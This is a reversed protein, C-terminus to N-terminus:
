QELEVTYRVRVIGKRRKVKGITVKGLEKTNEVHTGGCPIGTLGDITIIRAPVDKPMYSPCVGGCEAAISNYPVTKSTMVRAEGILEDMAEQLDEVFKPKRDEPIAGKYEVYPGSPFHFGKTPNMSIGIREMAEDALHGASHIRAHLRRSAEDVHLRVQDGVQLKGESSYQGEHYIVNGEKKVHSVVLKVETNSQSEIYGIDAPQGGGQPHFITRDLVVRVINEDSAISLVKSDTWDFVYTMKANMYEAITSMQTPVVPPSSTGSASSKIIAQILLLKDWTGPLYVPVRFMDFFMKEIQTISKKELDEKSVM